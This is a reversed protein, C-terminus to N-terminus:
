AEAGPLLAAYYVVVLVGGTILANKHSEYMWNTVGPRHRRDRRARQARAAGLDRARHDLLRGRDGGSPLPKFGDRRLLAVTGVMFM